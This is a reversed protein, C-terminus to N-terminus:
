LWKKRRFYYVLAGGVIIIATWFIPYSYPNDLEPMHKFNMGYVGALFTLPIFITAIITLVKMVENMKNSLTTLYINTLNDLMQRSTELSDIINLTNEKLDAFYPKSSADICPHQSKELYSIADKLPAISRRIYILEKKLNEIKMLLEKSDNTLVEEQIQEIRDELKAILVYYNEVIADLLVYLLYDAKRYRVMGKATRLRQRIHEFIAGEREQFSLVYADGLVFSVQEIETEFFQQDNLHLTKLSFFLYGEYEDFKARQETDLLDELMLKHFNFVKGINEIRKVDHMGHQNYWSM